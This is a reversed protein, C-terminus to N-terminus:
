CDPLRGNVGARVLAKARSVKAGYTAAARVRTQGASCRLYVATKSRQQHRECLKFNQQQTIAASSDQKNLTM